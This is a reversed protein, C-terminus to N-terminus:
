LQTETSAEIEDSGSKLRQELPLVWNLPKTLTRLKILNFSEDENIGEWEIGNARKVAQTIVDVDGGTIAKIRSFQSIDKLKIWGSSNMHKRLYIDKLLNNIGLYYELQQSCAEISQEKSEESPWNVVSGIEIDQINIYYPNSNNHQRSGKRQRTQQLSQQQQQQQQQQLKSKTRKGAADNQDDKSNSRKESSKKRNNNSNNNITTTTNNNLNKRKSRRNSVEKVPEPKKRIISEFNISPITESKNKTNWPTTTPIPAPKLVPKPTEKAPEEVVATTNEIAVPVSSVTELETAEIQTM